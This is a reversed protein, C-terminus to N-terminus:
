SGVQPFVSSFWLEKKVNGCMKKQLFLPANPNVDHRVNWKIQKMQQAWGFSSLGLIPTTLDLYLKGIVFFFRRRKWEWVNHSNNSKVVNWNYKTM